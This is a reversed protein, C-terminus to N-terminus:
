FGWVPSLLWLFILPARLGQQGLGRQEQRGPGPALCTLSSAEQHGWGLGVHSHGCSVGQALAVWAWGKEYEQGVSATLFLLAM